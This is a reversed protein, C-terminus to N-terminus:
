RCNSCALDSTTALVRELYPTLQSCLTDATSRRRAGKPMGSEQLLILTSSHTPTFVYCQSRMAASGSLLAVSLHNAFGPQRCLESCAPHNVFFLPPQNVDEKNRRVCRMSKIIRLSSAFAKASSRSASSFSIIATLTRTSRQQPTSRTGQASCKHQHACPTM